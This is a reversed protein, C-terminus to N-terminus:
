RPLSLVRDLVKPALWAAGQPGFHTGDVLLQVGDVIAPCPPGAPCLVGSLDIVATRDPHTRAYHHLLLDLRGLRAAPTAAPADDGPPPNTLLFVVRGGTSTLRGVAEDVLRMVVAAGEPRDFRVLRGDVYRDFSEFESMWVVFDPRARTVLQQQRQPIGKSCRDGWPFPRGEADAPVGTITGCGPVAGPYLEVGRAEAELKLAPALSVMVSTGVLLIRPPPRESTTPATTHPEATAEFVGEVSAGEPGRLYEPLPLAGRTAILLAAAGGAIAPLAALRLVRLDVAGRRIPQELAYFSLTAIAFTVGVRLLNLPLGELGTQSASLALQVPWHWLYVGYSIRGVWVLPPLALFVRVPSRGPAVTAAILVAVALAFLAYGGRYMWGSRDGVVALAAVCGIAGMIGLVQLAAGSARRRPTWRQLVLALLAGALLSHARTDTGYYARSFDVPDYLVAMLVASAVAGASCVIGLVLPRGRARRLCVLVVFPWLLYFQEEIGLSWAHRLPSPAAFLDFYSQGSWVFRWNAMFFLTTLGDARIRGLEHAPLVLAAWAAVTVLVLLLAPLLRRARLTWFVALAIRGTQQREAVLLSTILYGSLVFFADVGLYGGRAWGYGLHYAIVAGVSVARLGDLAPKYGFATRREEQGRM